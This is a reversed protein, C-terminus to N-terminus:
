SKTKHFNSPNVLVDDARLTLTPTKGFDRCVHRKHSRNLGVFAFNRNLLFMYSYIRKANGNSKEGDKVKRFM